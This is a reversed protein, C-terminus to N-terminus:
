LLVDPAEQDDYEDQDFPDFYEDGEDEGDIYNEPEPMADYVSEIEEDSLTWDLKKEDPESYINLEEIRWGTIGVDPEPEALIAWITVQRDRLTMAFVTEKM